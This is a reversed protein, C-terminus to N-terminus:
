SALRRLAKRPNGGFAYLAGAPNWSAVFAFAAVILDQTETDCEWLLRQLWRVPRGGLLAEIVPLLRLPGSYDGWAAMADPDLQFLDDDRVQVWPWGWEALRGSYANVALAVAAMAGDRDEAVRDAWETLGQAVMLRENRDVDVATM